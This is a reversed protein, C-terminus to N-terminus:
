GEALQRLRRRLRETEEQVEVLENLLTLARERDVVARVESGRLLEEAV